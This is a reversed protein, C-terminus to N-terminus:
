TTTGKIEAGSQTSRLFGRIAHPRAVAAVQADKAMARASSSWTASLPGM